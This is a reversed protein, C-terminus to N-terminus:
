GGGKGEEKRGRGEKGQRKVRFGGTTLEQLVATLLLAQSQGGLELAM